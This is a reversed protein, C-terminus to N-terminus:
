DRIAEAFDSRAAALGDSYGRKYQERAAGLLFTPRRAGYGDAFGRRYWESPAVETSVLPPATVTETYNM